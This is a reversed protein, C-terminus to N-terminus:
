TTDTPQTTDMAPTGNDDGCAVVLLGALAMTGLLTYRKM